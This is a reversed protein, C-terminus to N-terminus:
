QKGKVIFQKGELQILISRVYKQARKYDASFPKCFKFLSSTIEAVSFQDTSLLRLITQCWQTERDGNSVPTTELAVCFAEDCPTFTIPERFKIHPRNTEADVGGLKLFMPSQVSREVGDPATFTLGSPAISCVDYHVKVTAPNTYAGIHTTVYRCYWLSPNREACVKKYTDQYALIQQLRAETLLKLRVLSVMYFASDMDKQELVAQRMLHLSLKQFTEFSFGIREMSQQSLRYKVNRLLKVRTWQQYILVEAQM